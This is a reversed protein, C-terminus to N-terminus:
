PEFRNKYVEGPVIEKQCTPCLESNDIKKTSVSRPSSALGRPSRPPQKRNKSQAVFCLVCCLKKVENRPSTSAAGGGNLAKARQNAAIEEELKRMEEDHARRKEERERRRRELSDELSM